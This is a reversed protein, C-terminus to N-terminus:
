LQADHAETRWSIPFAYKYLDLFMSEASKRRLKERGTDKESQTMVLVFCWAINNINFTWKGWFTITTYYIM